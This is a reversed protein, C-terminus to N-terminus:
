RGLSRILGSAESVCGAETRCASASEILLTAYPHQEAEGNVATARQRSPHCRIGGRPVRVTDM